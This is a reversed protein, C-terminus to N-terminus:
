FKICHTYYRNKEHFNIYNIAKPSLLLTEEPAFFFAHKRSMLLSEPQKVSVCGMAYAPTIQGEKVLGTFISARPGACLRSIRQSSNCIHVILQGEDRIGHRTDEVLM